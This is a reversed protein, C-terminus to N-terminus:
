TLSRLLSDQNFGFSDAKFIIKNLIRLHSFQSSNKGLTKVLQTHTLQETTDSENRGRPSYGALSRQAHLEGPLFIPTPLWGRRWPIKGSRPIWGPDGM